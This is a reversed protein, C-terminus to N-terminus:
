FKIIFTNNLKSKASFVVEDHKKSKKKSIPKYIKFRATVLCIKLGITSSNWSFFCFHLHFGILYNYIDCYSIALYRLQLYRM